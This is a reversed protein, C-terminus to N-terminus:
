RGGRLALREFRKLTCVPCLCEDNTVHPALLASLVVGDRKVVPVPLVGTMGLTGM